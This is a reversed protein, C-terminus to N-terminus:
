PLRPLHRMATDAIREITGARYHFEDIFHFEGVFRREEMDGAWPRAKLVNERFVARSGHWAMVAARHAEFRRACAPTTTEGLGCASEIADPGPKDLFTYDVGSLFPIGARSSLAAFQQRWFGSFAILRAIDEPSTAPAAADVPAEFDPSGFLPDAKGSYCFRTLDGGDFLAALAPPHPSTTVIRLYTAYLTRTDAEPYSVTLCPFGLRESLRSPLTEANSGLGFGFVHSAGFVLGYRGGAECTAIGHRSGRWETHRFGFADTSFCAASLSPAYAVVDGRRVWRRNRLYDRVAPFHRAVALYNAM